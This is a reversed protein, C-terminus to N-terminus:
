VLEQEESGHCVEAELQIAHVGRFCLWEVQHGQIWHRKEGNDGEDQDSDGDNVSTQTDVVEVTAQLRVDVLLPVLVFFLCCLKRGVEGM